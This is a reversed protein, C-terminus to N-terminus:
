QVTCCCAKHEDRDQNSSAVTKIAQAQAQIPPSESPVEAKTSLMPPTLAADAEGKPGTDKLMPPADPLSDLLRDLALRKSDAPPVTPAPQAVGQVTDKLLERLMGERRDVAAAEAAGHTTGDVGLALFHAVFGSRDFKANSERDIQQLIRELADYRVHDLGLLQAVVPDARVAKIVEATSLQGDGSADISFFIAELQARREASPASPAAEQAGHVSAVRSDRDRTAVEGGAAESSKAPRSSAAPRVIAQRQGSAARAVDSRAQRAPRLPSEAPPCPPAPQAVSGTRQGVSGSLTSNRARNAAHMRRRKEVPSQTDPSRVGSADTIGDPLPLTWGVPGLEAADLGAPHSAGKAKAVESSALSIPSFPERSSSETCWSDSPGVSTSPITSRSRNPKIQFLERKSLDVIITKSRDWDSWEERVSGERLPRLEDSEELPLNLLRIPSAHREEMALRSVFTSGAPACASLAYLVIGRQLESSTDAPEWAAIEGPRRHLQEVLDQTAPAAREHATSYSRATHEV